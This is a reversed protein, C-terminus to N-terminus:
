KGSASSADTPTATPIPADLPPPAERIPKSGISDLAKVAEEWPVYGTANKLRHFDHGGQQVPIDPVLLRAELLGSVQLVAAAAVYADHRSSNLSLEADRLIQEQQLVEFTTRLGAKEEESAGDYAVQAARVQELNAAIGARGALLRNWNQSLAQIMSRRAGELQIVFFNRREVAQRIASERAGGAYLPQTVVVAIDLRRNFNQPALPYLGTADNFTTQLAVSPGVNAKAATVQAESSQASYDAARIAPANREATDFAQDLTKPVLTLEPEPALDGPSQGVTQAYSARSVALQAQAISFAAQAQALEAEAQAVDTKTVEGVDFRTRAEDVQRKLVTLNKQQIALAEQDRRVDVYATITDLMVQNEVARLNERQTMIDAEAQHVAATTRGSTYIPQTLTLNGSLQNAEPTNDTCNNSGFPNSVCPNIRTSEYVAQVTASAAPRFGARAQVYQEDTFRLQARQSQLTPNTQYALAIADALTEARAVAAPGAFAMGIVVASLGARFAKM